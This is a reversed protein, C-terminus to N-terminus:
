RVYLTAFFHSVTLLFIMSYSSKVESMVIGLGLDTVRMMVACENM